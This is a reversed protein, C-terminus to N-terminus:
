KICYHKLMYCKKETEEHTSKLKNLNLQSVTLKTAQTLCKKDYRIICQSDFFLVSYDQGYCQWTNVSKLIKKATLSLLFNTVFDYKFVGGCGLPTAVSGQSTDIEGFNPHKLLLYFSTNHLVKAV